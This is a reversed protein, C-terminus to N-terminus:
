VVAITATKLTTGDAYKIRAKLNNGAEDLYWTVESAQLDADTPASAPVKEFVRGDFKIGWKRVVTAGLNDIKALWGATRTNTSSLTVDAGTGATGAALLGRITVDVGSSNAALFCTSGSTVLTFSGGADRFGLGANNCLYGGSCVLFGTNETLTTGGNNLIIASAGGTGNLYLARVENATAGIDYTVDAGPLLHGSNSISWRLAIAGGGTYFQISGTHRNAFIFDDNYAIDAGDTDDLAQSTKSFKLKPLSAHALQLTFGSNPVAGTGIALNGSLTGGSLPLFGFYM